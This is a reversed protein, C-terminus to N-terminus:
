LQWEDLTDITHVPPVRKSMVEPKSHVGTGVHITDIGGNIGAMIDTDYNDGIMAVEEKLMNLRALAGTLIYHNPKGTIVPSVGTVESVLKVFSGNGPSFGYATKIKIDPNTALFQAGKQILRCATLIKDFTISTDLGMVVADPAHENLVITGNDTLTKKFSETGIVYVSPTDFAGELYSKMAAASTYIHKEATTFGMSEFKELIEAPQRTANNTLFLYPIDAKNLRDIFNVAGEIVGDGNFMTGDLDILYGKYMQRVASLRSQRRIMKM